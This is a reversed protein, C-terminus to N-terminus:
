RTYPLAHPLPNKSQQLAVAFYTIAESLGDQDLHARGADQISGFMRDAGLMGLM